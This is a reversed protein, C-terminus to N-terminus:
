INKSLALTASHPPKYKFEFSSSSGSPNNHSNHVGFGESSMNEQKINQNSDADLLISDIVQNILSLRPKRKAINKFEKV